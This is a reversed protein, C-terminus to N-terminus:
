FRYIREANRSAVADREAESLSGLVERFTEVIDGYTAYLKGVPWNTGFICRDAGFTELCTHIWPTVTDADWDHDIMTFESIKCVANEADALLALQHKWSDFYDKSRSQPFGMHDLVIITEDAHAATDLALPMREWTCDLSLVLDRRGLERLGERWQPNELYETGDGFDRIGRFLPSAAEHRDLVNPLDASKLDAYGVIALPFDAALAETQLWKTEEVPDDIGVAAQVHVAKHVGHPAAEAIFDALRYDFAAVSAVEDPSLVPHQNASDLWDYRLEPRSLDFFHVHTDILSHIM